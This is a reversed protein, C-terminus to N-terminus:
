KMGISGTSVPLARTGAIADVYGSAATTVADVVVHSARTATVFEEGTRIEIGPTTAFGREVGIRSAPAPTVGIM